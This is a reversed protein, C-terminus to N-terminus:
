PGEIQIESIAAREVLTDYGGGQSGESQDYTDLIEIRVYDTQTEPLETFQMDPEKEFEAETTSGDSLEIEARKIVHRQYFRDIGNVPDFKDYGPILGVRNVTVPQKYEILIYEGTSDEEVQWATETDGDAANDPEYSLTRGGADQQPPATSSASASSPTVESASRPAASTEVETEESATTPREGNGGEAQQPEEIYGGVLPWSGPGPLSAAPGVGALATAGMVSVLIILLGAIALALLKGSGGSASRYASRSAHPRAPM